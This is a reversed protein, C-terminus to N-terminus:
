QNKKKSNENSVSDKSASARASRRLSARALGAANEAKRAAEKGAGECAERLAKEEADKRQVPSEANEEEDESDPATWLTAKPMSLRQTRTIKVLIDMREKDTLKRATELAVTNGGLYEAVLVIRREETARRVDQETLCLFPHVALLSTIPSATGYDAVYHVMGSDDRSAIAYSTTMDRKRVLAIAKRWFVGGDGKRMQKPLEALHVEKLVRDLSTEKINEMLRKQTKLSVPTTQYTM